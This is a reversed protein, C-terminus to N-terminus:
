GVASAQEVRAPDAPARAGGLLRSYLATMDSAADAMTRPPRVGARLRALLAPDGCIARVAHRWADLSGPEVLLGDVGDRVLEAIGGLRSGLVPVGAAFSELVVLPGTELWQSPVVTVDYRALTPVVDQAAVPPVFRVRPDGEVIRRLQALYAVGSPGQAVGRVDVELRAEPAGVLARLFVDMGKTPDLRGLLAARVPGGVRAHSPALPRVRSPVGQRSHVLRAAPVGNLLLLAHVWEAVAVVADAIVFL